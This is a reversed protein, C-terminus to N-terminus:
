DLTTKKIRLTIRGYYSTFLSYETGYHWVDRQISENHRDELTSSRYLFNICFREAEEESTFAHRMFEENPKNLKVQFVVYIEKM